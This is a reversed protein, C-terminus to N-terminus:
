STSRDEDVEDPAHECIPDTDRRLPHSPNQQFSRWRAVRLWLMADIGAGISLAISGAIASEPPENRGLLTNVVSLLYLAAIIPVWGGADLQRASFRHQPRYTWMFYAAPILGGLVVAWWIPYYVSGSM